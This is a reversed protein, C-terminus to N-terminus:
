TKSIREAKTLTHLNCCVSQSCSHTWLGVWSGVNGCFKCHYNTCNLWAANSSAYVTITHTSICVRSTTHPKRSILHAMCLGCHLGVNLSPAFMAHMFRMEIKHTRAPATVQFIRRGDDYSCYTDVYFVTPQKQLVTYIVCYHIYMGYCEPSEM